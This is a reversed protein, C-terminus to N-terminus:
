KKILNEKLFLAEVGAMYDRNDKKFFGHGENDAYVTWVKRGGARVKAVIQEAESFPVRPDNVGHVVLLASRIRDANASPNIKEFVARMQPDREDGYEARRLDQRYPSTRELFTIFNAIGVVDIGARLREGHNVLSALVMFGGYSGGTVAVRSSDLEPQRAIWDLLAGIDKVSDLRLPGNDLKLYTKGYGASGRVNPYIVALGLENVNFQTLGVFDPRYQSEPGGHINILVAAPSQATASRPRYYYAPIQRGDFSSFEVRSPAVFKAPDLGGAESYTWRTLKGDGISVSYADTGSDPRSLTFGLHKGDASFKVGRMVGLPLEFQRRKDGELLYLRSAGHENTTFAVAGSQPEVEVTDIDWPIDRTLSTYKLTALDLRMLELYESTADCTVYATKGDPSFVMEGIAAKGEAPLPLKQLQKTAMDFVAPYGENISVYQAVLLKSGDQSWDRATWFQDKTELLLELKEHRCNALYIDTDRGNRRNNHVIMQSGDESVPGLLNRSKGDTLLTTTHAARDLRYVQDNENGGQSMIVLVDDSTSKPVFRGVAPEDFFTIQERRGGPEYVHHLQPANGFRTRVLMGRGDPAWGMFEAGRISQYQRLRAFIEEPVVPVDQTKIASPRRPDEPEDARVSAPIIFLALLLSVRISM